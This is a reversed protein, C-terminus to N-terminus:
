YFVFDAFFKDNLCAHEIITDGEAILQQIVRGCSVGFPNYLGTWVNEM